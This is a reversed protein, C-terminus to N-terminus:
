SKDKAMAEVIWDLKKAVLYTNIQEKWEEKTDSWKVLRRICYKVHNKRDIEFQIHLKDIEEQPKKVTFLISGGEDNGYEDMDSVIEFGVCTNFLEAIQEKSNDNDVEVENCEIAQSPTSTNHHIARRIEDAFSGNIRLSM